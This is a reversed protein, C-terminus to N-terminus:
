DDSRFVASFKLFSELTKGFLLCNLRTGPYLGIWIRIERWGKRAHLDRLAKKRRAVQDAPDNLM